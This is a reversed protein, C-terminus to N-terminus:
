GRVNVPYEAVLESAKVEDAVPTIKLRWFM